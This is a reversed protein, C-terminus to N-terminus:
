KSSTAVSEVKLGQVSVKTVGEGPARQAQLRLTPSANTWKDLPQSSFPIHWSKAGAADELALDAGTPKLDIEREEGPPHGDTEMGVCAPQSRQRQDDVHRKWATLVSGSNAPSAKSQDESDSTMAVIFVHNTPTSDGQFILGNFQIEVQRKTFNLLDTPNATM